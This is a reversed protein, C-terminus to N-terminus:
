RLEQLSKPLLNAVPIEWTDERTMWERSIHVSFGSTSTHSQIDCDFGIKFIARKMGIGYTGVTPLNEDIRDGPPRGLRFASDRVANSIGGCNDSITFTTGSFTLKAHYGAYPRDSGAPSKASRLAGDVCNDLLDLVADELEIDKTLMNVFFEKTPLFSVVDEGNKQSRV